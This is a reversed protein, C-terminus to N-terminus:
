TPRISTSASITNLGSWLTVLLGTDVDRTPEIGPVPPGVPADRAALAAAVDHERILGAEREASKGVKAIVEHPRLWVVVNNTRQLVVPDRSVFGLDAAVRSAASVEVLGV